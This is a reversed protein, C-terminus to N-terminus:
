VFSFSSLSLLSLFFLSFPVFPIAEGLVVWPVGASWGLGGGVKLVELSERSSSVSSLSLLSLFYLSFPGVVPFWWFVGASRSLRGGWGGCRLGEVGRELFSFDLSLFFLSFSSLSLGSM